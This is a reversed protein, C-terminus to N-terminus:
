GALIARVVGDLEGDIAPAPLGCQRGIKGCDLVSRRPRRAPTPFEVSSIPQLPPPALGARGAADLLLRAFGHWSMAAAGCYNFLGTATPERDLLRLGIARMAGALAAATTPCGVQDDVVRLAEGGRARRLLKHPFSDGTGSFVWSTRLIAWSELDGREAAVTAVARDGALKSAGYVSLPNPADTEVYADPKEGDFVYDTSVHVFPIRLEACALAAAQPLAANLAHALAPEAEARDVATYAAANLVLHPRAQAIAAAAAAGAGTAVGLSRRGLSTVQASGPWPLARLACALQGAEGLILISTM